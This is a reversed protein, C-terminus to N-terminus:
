LWLRYAIGPKAHAIKSVDIACLGPDLSQRQRSICHLPGPNVPCAFPLMCLPKDATGLKRTLEAAM